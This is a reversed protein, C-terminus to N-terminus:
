NLYHDRDTGPKADQVQTRINRYVGQPHCEPTSVHLLQFKEHITNQPQIKSDKISHLTKALIKFRIKNDLAILKRVTRGRV